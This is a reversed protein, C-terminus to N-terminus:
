LLCIIHPMGDSIITARQLRGGTDEGFFTLGLTVLWYRTDLCDVEKQSSGKVKILHDEGGTYLENKAKNFATCLIKGDHAGDIVLDVEMAM